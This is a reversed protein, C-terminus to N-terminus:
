FVCAASGRLEGSGNRDGRLIWRPGNVETIGTGVETSADFYGTV